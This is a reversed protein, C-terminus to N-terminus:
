RAFKRQLAQSISGSVSFRGGGGPVSLLSSDCSQVATRLPCLGLSADSLRQQFNTSSKLGFFCLDSTGGLVNSFTGLYVPVPAVSCLWHGPLIPEPPLTSPSRCAQRRGDGEAGEADM